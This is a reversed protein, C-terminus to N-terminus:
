SFELSLQKGEKDNFSRKIPNAIHKTNPNTIWNREILEKTPNKKPFVEFNAKKNVIPFM